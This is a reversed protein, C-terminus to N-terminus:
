VRWEVSVRSPEFFNRGRVASGVNVKEIVAGIIARQQEIDLKPWQTVLARPNKLYPRLAANRRQAGVQGRALELRRDVADRAVIWEERGIRDAAFEEALERLKAQLATANLATGVDGARDLAKKFAPSDLSHAVEAAVLEEFSEALIRIGGCGHYNTGTACVYARRKDVTPRAVLRCGCLACFAYGTLLYRRRHQNLQRAPDNLLARLKDSQARPIIAPWTGKAVIQGHHERYGAIRASKLIRVVGSTYWEGGASTLIKKRNLETAISRITEGALVRRAADRILAAEKERITHRDPEYGFARTGGGHPRGEAAIQQHKRRIRVAKHESEYAGVSGLMRARLRGEPTGLDIEGTVTALQVNSANAIDIFRELEKPQRHLRDEHWVLVADVARARMDELLHEYEPRKRTNYSSASIDNDTYIQAVPWGKTKALARCDAEQRGVGAAEGTRDDSIRCYIAAKKVM